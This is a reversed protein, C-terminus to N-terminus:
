ISGIAHAFELANATTLIDSPLDMNKKVAVIEAEHSESPDYILGLYDVRHWKGNNLGQEKDSQLREEPNHFHMVIEQVLPGIGRDKLIASFDNEKNYEINLIHILARGELFTGGSRYALTWGWKRLKSTPVVTNRDTLFDNVSIALYSEPLTLDFLYALGGKERLLPNIHIM